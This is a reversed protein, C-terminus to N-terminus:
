ALSAVFGILPIGLLALLLVTAFVILAWAGASLPRAPAVPEDDAIRRLAHVAQEVLEERAYPEVGVWDWGPEATPLLLRRPVAAVAAAVRPDAGPGEDGGAAFVTSYPTLVVGAETLSAVVEATPSEEMPVVRPELEPLAEALAEVLAAGLAGAGPDLIVLRLSALREARARRGEDGDARIVWAHYAWTAAGIGAFAFAQALDLGIMDQPSAEGLAWSVLRYVLYVAHGVVVVVGVLLFLYLYLKRVISAREDRGAEDRRGALAQARRWPRLWVPLGAILAASSWALQGRLAPGLPLGGLARLLFGVVGALGVLAAGLGIAAVLYHYIRRIEAQRPTEEADADDARLVAAHLAWVAGAVVLVSLADLVDGSTELSLLRRLTGNLLLAASGVSALVSLFIVLYLYFTRLASRREAESPSAHLAQGRRWALWWAPFSVLLAALPETLSSVASPIGAGPGLAGLIWRLVLVASSSAIALAVAAAGLVFLRRVSASTGQPRRQREERLLIRGHFAALPVLIALAVLAYGADDGLGLSSRDLVARLALEVLEFVGVAIPLAFLAVMAYLYFRRLASAAEDASAAVLRGSWAWHLAWVPLTVVLVAIEFAVLSVDPPDIVGLVGRLLWIAAWTAAQLAIGSALYVYARRAVAIM